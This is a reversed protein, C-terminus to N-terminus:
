KSDLRNPSELGKYARESALLKADDLNKYDTIPNDVMSYGGAICMNRIVDSLITDIDTDVYKRLERLRDALVALETQIEDLEMYVEM